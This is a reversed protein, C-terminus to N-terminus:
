DEKLAAEILENWHKCFTNVEAPDTVLSELMDPSPDRMAEICARAIIEVVDQEQYTLTDFTPAGPPRNTNWIAEAVRTVMPRTDHGNKMALGLIRWCWSRRRALIYVM